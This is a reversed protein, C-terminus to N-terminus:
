VSVLTANKDNSSKNNVNNNHKKSTKFSDFIQKLLHKANGNIEISRTEIHHLEFM